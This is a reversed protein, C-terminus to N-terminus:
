KDGVRNLIIRGIAVAAEGIHAQANEMLTTEVYPIGEQKAALSHGYTIHRSLLANLNAFKDMIHKLQADTIPQTMRDEDTHRPIGQIDMRIHFRVYGCNRREDL